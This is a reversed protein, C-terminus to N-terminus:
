DKKMVPSAARELFKELELYLAASEFIRIEPQEM